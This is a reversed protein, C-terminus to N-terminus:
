FVEAWRDWFDPEDHAVNRMAVDLQCCTLTAGSFRPSGDPFELFAQLAQFELQTTDYVVDVYLEGLYRRMWGVNAFHGCPIWHIGQLDLWEIIQKRIPPFQQHKEDQCVTLLDIDSATEIREFSM